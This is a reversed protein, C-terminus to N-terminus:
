KLGRGYNGKTFAGTRRYSYDIVIKQKVLRTIDLDACNLLQGYCYHIKYRRLRFDRNEYTLTIDYGKCNECGNSLEKKECHCFTMLPINGLAYTYGKEGIRDSEISYIKPIDSVDNLINLGFGAIVPADNVIALAYLNNAIFGKFPCKAIIEKLIEIDKGRAIFPLNLIMRDFYPEFKMLHDVSYETPNLAIVEMEDTIQNIDDVQYITRDQLFLDIDKSIIDTLTLYNDEYIPMKANYQRLIEDILARYSSRRLENFDAKTMFANKGELTVRGTEFYPSKDFNTKLDNETIPLKEAPLVNEITLEVRATGCSLSIKRESFNVAVDVTLKRKRSLIERSIREDTTIYIDDGAKVEGAFGTENGTKSVSASGVEYGSRLIKIGDGKVLTKEAKLTRGKVSVVKCYFLGKHSAIKTDLLKQTGVRLHGETYDGRNFVKKLANVDDETARKTELVKKYIRVSEAVYEPRRMRGEIKICDVIGSLLNLKDALMLDKASLLYGDCSKGNVVAKYKKRCLQMCKGRNGSYGSAFSSFYCNGSFSICLAGQVFCEIEIDVRKKIEKIDELLTERSLIVRSFGLKKAILAGEANHIGLQTSAHMIAKPCKKRLLQAFGLDQVIFADAKCEYARMAANLADDMEENKILTNIAVYVKVGYIHAYEIAEALNDDFNEAKARASYKDLGLYVADAGNIVAAKLMEFNGAPALIEM